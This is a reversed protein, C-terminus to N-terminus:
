CKGALFGMLLAQTGYASQVPITRCSGLFRCGVGLSKFFLLMEFARFCARLSSVVMPFRLLSLKESLGESRGVLRIKVHQLSHFIQIEM